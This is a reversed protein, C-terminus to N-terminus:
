AGRRRKSAATERLNVMMGWGWCRGTYTRGGIHAEIQYMRSGTYSNAKWGAGLRCTGVPLGTWVTVYRVGPSAVDGVYATFREPLDRLIEFQQVRGRMDNTCAAYDPHAAEEATLSNRGPAIRQWYADARDVIAREAAYTEPSITTIPM